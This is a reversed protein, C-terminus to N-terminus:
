QLLSLVQQPLDNAQSLVSISAQELVNQQTYETMEEAMDTDLINSYAATMDEHTEALSNSAYELRNTFAGIGSRISSLRAIAEDLTRMAKEPGGAKTVDVTDLYLSKSSVEPIRVEMDQYQNAGIQISMPGIDTVHIRVEQLTQDTLLFDMSFGNKDTIKIRNGKASATATDFFGEDTQLSIQADVGKQNLTYTGDKESFVANGEGSLGVDQALAKGMELTITEESGYGESSILYGGAELREASCGAQEATTRLAEFFSEESMGAQYEMSVGNISIRGDVTGSPQKLTYEAKEAAQTVDFKYQGPLVTDSVQMRDVQKSYVRVDSSGDLLTKTNYETDSSIRDVEETLKDIEEQMSKRDNYSNTGNAAQVSLERIRQLISSVENLAGDATRLVSEGDSANSKAQDLGDIQAKMKKSIALGAPNDGAKNIKLGSSLREMSSSLRNETRLLHKNTMVASMNRNIKM